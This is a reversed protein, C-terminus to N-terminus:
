IPAFTDRTFGHLLFELPASTGREPAAQTASKTAEKVPNSANGEVKPQADQSPAPPVRTERHRRESVRDPRLEPIGNQSVQLWNLAM